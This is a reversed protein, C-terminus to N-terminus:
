LKIVDAALLGLQSTCFPGALAHTFDLITIGALPKAM